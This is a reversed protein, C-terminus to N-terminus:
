RAGPEIWAPYLYLYTGRIDPTVDHVGKKVAMVQYRSVLPVNPVIQKTLIDQIKFYLDKRKAPDKEQDAQETLQDVEPNSVHDDNSTGKPALNKSNYHAYLLHPDENTWGFPLRFLLNFTGAQLRQDEGASSLKELKLDIGVKKLESQAFEMVGPASDFTVGALELRKGAKARIGDSGAKWGADDLTKKAAEMDYHPMQAAPNVDLMKEELLSYSPTDQGFFVTKNLGDRDIAQNIATRVAVDDTPARQINMSIRVPSGNKQIKIVDFRADSSLRALDSEPVGYIANVEGSLLAAVRTSPEGIYRFEIRDLLPPGNRKYIPSAWQYDPNREITVHSGRQWEVFKFPGTGVPHDGFGPVGSKQVATPSVIGLYSRGLASSLFNVRPHELVIKATSDDVVQTTKYDAMLSVTYGNNPQYKPDAARDLSFKVAAANFPTADHFKVGKKLKMTYNLGDDSVDWSEALGPKITNDSPDQYVLTDYLADTITNGYTLIRMPPDLSPTDPSEDTPFVLKLTGGSQANGAASAGSGAPSAAPKSATSAPAATGGCAALAASGVALLSVRLFARRGLQGRTGARFKEFGM